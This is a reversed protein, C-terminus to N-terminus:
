STSSEANEMEEEKPDDALTPRFLAAYEAALDHGIPAGQGLTVAQPM